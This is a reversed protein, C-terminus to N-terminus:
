PKLEKKDAMQTFTAHGCACSFYATLLNNEFIVELSMEEVTQIKYCYQCKYTAVKETM